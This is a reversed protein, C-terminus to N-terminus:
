QDELTPVFVHKDRVSKQETMPKGSGTVGVRGYPNDPTKFISRGESGAIHIGKKNAKKAFKQWNNQKNNMESNKQERAEAKRESKKRKREREKEDEISTLSKQSDRQRKNTLSIKTHPDMAKIQNPQVQQTGEYGRFNITYVIKPHIGSVAKVIAPYFKGDNYKAMIDEGAKFIKVDKSDKGKSQPPQESTSPATQAPATSAKLLDILNSLEDKLGILEANTPDATLTEKVQELQLEYQSIEEAS